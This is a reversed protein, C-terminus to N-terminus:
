SVLKATMVQALQGEPMCSKIVRQDAARLCGIKLDYAIRSSGQLISHNGFLVHALVLIKLPLSLLPCLRISDLWAGIVRSYVSAHVM